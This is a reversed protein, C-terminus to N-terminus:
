DNLEILALSKDINSGPEPSPYRVAGRDNSLLIWMFDLFVVIIISNIHNLEVPRHSASLVAEFKNINYLECFASFSSVLQVLSCQFWSVQVSCPKDNYARKESECIM